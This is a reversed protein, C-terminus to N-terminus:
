FFIKPLLKISVGFLLNSFLVWLIYSLSRKLFFFIMLISSVSKSDSCYYQKCNELITMVKGTQIHFFVWSNICQGIQLMEARASHEIHSFLLIVIKWKKTQDKQPRTVDSFSIEPYTNKLSSTFADYLNSSFTEM